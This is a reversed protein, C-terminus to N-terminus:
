LFKDKVDETNPVYVSVGKYGPYPPLSVYGPHGPYVANRIKKQLLNVFIRDELYVTGLYKGNTDVAIEDSVFWGIWRGFSNFLYKGSQFAIWKGKSDFYYKVDM